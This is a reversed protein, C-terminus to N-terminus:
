MTRLAYSYIDDDTGFRGDAGASRVLLSDGGGHERRECRLQFPRGWGDRRSDSALEAVAQECSAGPHATLWAPVIRFAILDVWVGSARVADRQRAEPAAGHRHVAYGVAAVALAVLLLKRKHSSTKM